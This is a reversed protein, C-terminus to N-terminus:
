NFQYEFYKESFVRIEDYLSFQYNWIRLDGWFIDNSGEKIFQKRAWNAAGEASLAIETENVYDYGFKDPRLGYRSVIPEFMMNCIVCDILQYSQANYCGFLKDKGRLEAFNAHFADNLELLFPRLELLKNCASLYPERPILFTKRSKTFFWRGKNVYLSKWFDKNPIKANSAIIDNAAELKNIVDLENM